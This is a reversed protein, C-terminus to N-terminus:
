STSHVSDTDNLLLQINLALHSGRKYADQRDESFLGEKM